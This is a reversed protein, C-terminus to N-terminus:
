GSCATFHNTLTRSRKPGHHVKLFVRATLVHRSGPAVTVHFRASFPANTRRRILRGDLRFLVKRVKVVVHGKRKSSRVRLRMVIDGSRVCGRPTQLTVIDSGVRFSTSAFPGRDPDFVVGPPAPYRTPPPAKVPGPPVFPAIPALDALELGTEDVFAVAGSGDDAVAASANRDDLYNEGVTAVDSETFSAGHDTSSFLRMVREGDGARTGPWLIALRGSPSQTAAGADFLGADPDNALLKPPGFSSGDDRRIDLLTPESGGAATDVDVAFLGAAGGSLVPEDGATSVTIPGAWNDRDAISGTGSYRYAGVVSDAGTPSDGFHFYADVPRGAADLALSSTKVDHGPNAFTFSGRAAGFAGVGLDADAAGILTSAGAGIVDEPPALAPAVGRIRAPPGFAGGNTSTWTIADGRSQRPGVLTVTGDPGAVPFLGDVADDEGDGEPAHLIQPAGCGLGPAVVCVKPIPALEGSGSESTWAVLVSGPASGPPNLLVHGPTEPHEDLTFRNAAHASPVAALLSTAALAGVASRLLNM